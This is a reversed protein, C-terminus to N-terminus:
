NEDMKVEVEREGEYEDKVRLGGNKSKKTCPVM